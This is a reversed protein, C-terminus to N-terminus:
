RLTLDGATLRVKLTSTGPGQWTFSRFLGGKVVNFPKATLDGATVSAEVKRYDDPSGVGINVNGAWSSVDKSGKVGELNLDGASLRVTLDTRSPVEVEVRMGGMPSSTAIVMERGKAELKADCRGVDDPDSTTWRIWVRDDRGPRIEYDGASLDMWVHGGPAFPREASRPEIKAQASALGCAALVVAVALASRRNM